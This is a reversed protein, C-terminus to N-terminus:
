KKMSKFEADLKKSKEIEENLKRKVEENSSNLTAHTKTLDELKKTQKKTEEKLAKINDAMTTNEDEKAM